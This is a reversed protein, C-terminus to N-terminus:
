HGRLQEAGIDDRYAHPYESRDHLQGQENPPTQKQKQHHAGGRSRSEKGVRREESRVTKHEAALTQAYQELREVSYFEAQFPKEDANRAPKRLFSVFSELLESM